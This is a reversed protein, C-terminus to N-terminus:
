TIFRSRSILNEQNLTFVCLKILFYTFEFRYHRMPFMVTLLYNHVADEM